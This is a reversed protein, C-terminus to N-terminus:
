LTESMTTPRMTGNTTRAKELSGKANYGKVVQQQDLAATAIAEVVRANVTKAANLANIDKIIAEQFRKSALALRQKLTVPVEKYKDSNKSIEEVRAQYADTLRMKADQLSTIKNVKMQKLLGTEEELLESLRDTIEIMSEIRREANLM